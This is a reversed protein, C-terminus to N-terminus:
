ESKVPNWFPFTIAGKLLKKLHRTWAQKGDTFMYTGQWHLYSAYKGGTVVSIVIFNVWCWKM